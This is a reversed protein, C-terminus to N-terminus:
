NSWVIDTFKKLPNHSKKKKKKKKYDSDLAM